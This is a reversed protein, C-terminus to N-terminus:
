FIRTDALKALDYSDKRDLFTGVHIVKEAQVGSIRSPEFGYLYESDTGGVEDLFREFEVRNGALIIAKYKMM